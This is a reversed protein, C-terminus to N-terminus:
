DSLARLLITEIREASRDWSHEAVARARAGRGLEIALEPDELLTLIGSAFADIDDDEIVLGTRGHELSVASGAFAVIPKGAAMYNLVKQPVGDCVVRPSVAIDTAALEAPLGDWSTPRISVSDRLDLSATLAEYPAFSSDTLFLLRAARRDRVKRFARLLLDIGQYSALNGAFVVVPPDQFTPTAHANLGPVSEFRESEVGNPIVTVREPRVAKERLLSSRIAATVTIVEEARGPAQRDVWTGLVQKVRWPLGMPYFALESALLTHADYVIPRRDASRMSLAVLLGEYHHAHVVDIEHRRIVTRLTRRLMPDVLLLKRWTPGPSMKQYSRVPPIRHIAFPPNEAASGLHYTVVHVDHGRRALAESARYIRIPTGRPLPFPCAAVVAIRLRRGVSTVPRATRSM